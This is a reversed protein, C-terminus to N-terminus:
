RRPRKTAPRKAALARVKTAGNALAEFHSFAKGAEQVASLPVFDAVEALKNWMARIAPHQHAEDAAKASVWEFIELLTGDSRARLLISPRSTVLHAATLTRRHERILKRLINDQGPKPRYAAIVTETRERMRQLPEASRRMFSIVREIVAGSAAQQLM